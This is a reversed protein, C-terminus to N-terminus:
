ITAIKYKDLSLIFYNICFHVKKEKTRQKFLPYSRLAKKYVGNMVLINIIQVVFPVFIYSYVISFM